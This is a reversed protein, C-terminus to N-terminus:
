SAPAILNRLTTFLENPSYPKHLFRIRSQDFQAKIAPDVYGSTVIVRLNLNESTIKTLVDRGSIKPLGLDLVVIDIHDKHQEYIDLAIQGNSAKLVKYGNKVFQKELLQLMNLEDEAVLVTAAGNSMAATEAGVEITPWKAIEDITEIRFYLRFVTGAMPKSEVDVFGNHNKMIGYVVSLGLGTGQGKEKTTFFPEFIRERIIEAIGVGTDSVEICAYRAAVESAFEQIASGDVSQTKLTLRGGQPMADRANVYLNLLAQQIQNKDAMIQPLDPEMVCSLEITKPFTEQILPLLGEILANLNVLEFDTSRDKRGVTLLQQVVASGRGVTDNIVRVSDQIEKKGVSHEDITSAYAQIINLINNFDHAVGAALTGISEMKQAQLLQAELKKREEIDRLLVLNAERLQNTREAVRRELEQNLQLIEEEAQKHEIGIALQRAITLSLELEIDGFAHPEDYYIMFKGDLRGNVIMPIFALAGIREDILAAKLCQDLGAEAMNPISVPEPDSDEPTWPSHGEVARRYNESLGRWAVFRMVGSEDHRLIAARQCPLASLISDLAADYMEDVSRAQQRRDLFYYLADRRHIAEALAVEARKREIFQGLQAGINALTQLFEADPERIERSFCEIVGLVETGIAIPFCVGAHLGDQLAQPRRPFNNDKTVDSIYTPEGTKWVRGALGIGPAFRIRRTVAEFEPVDTEPAHWVDVSKLKRVERDVTWITGVDWGTLECIAQVIKPTATRLDDSEALAHSTAIQLLLLRETRTRQAIDQRLAEELRQRDESREQIVRRATLFTERLHEIESVRSPADNAATGKGLGLNSALSVLAEISGATKSSLWWALAVGIMLLGAGLFTLYLVSGRLPADVVTAPIGMAVTWGSFSSRNYPTYVPWGEVTAGRFWGDSSRALAARLSESALQGVVKDGGISRTVFRNNGDLVVSIWDAPLKQPSILRGITEPKVVASLVYKTTGNRVVPVRVSFEPRQTVPGQIIDGVAPKGTRLVKELSNRERTMPLPADPARLLNMIQQGSPLTLNITFWDPQSVLVREAEERFSQLDDNDFSRLVALAELATISSRLATDVATLLARTRETAGKQFTDSEQKALISIMLGAFILLPVTTALVLATLQTRLSIPRHFILRRLGM